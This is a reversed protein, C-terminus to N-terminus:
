IWRRVSSKYAEYSAGFKEALYKEEHRIAIRYIVYGCVPAMLFVWAEDLIISFGICVIVMMLYMPNRTYKYPGKVVIEPTSTWPAPDQEIKNFLKIPWIALVLVAVVCIIGGVWYRAPAPLLFDDMLPFFRGLGFGILITLVGVLPPPFKVAAHDNDDSM